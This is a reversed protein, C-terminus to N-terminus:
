ELPVRKNTSTRMVQLQLRADHALSAMWLLVTSSTGNRGPERCVEESVPLELPLQQPAQLGARRPLLRAELVARRRRVHQHRWM